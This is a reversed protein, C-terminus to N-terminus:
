SPSRGLRAFHAACAENKYAKAAEDVVQKVAPKRLWDKLAGAVSSSRRANRGAFGDTLTLAATDYEKTVEALKAAQAPQPTKAVLLLDSSIWQLRSARGQASKRAKASWALARGIQRRRRLHPFADIRLKDPM